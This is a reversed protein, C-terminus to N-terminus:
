CCCCCGGECANCIVCMECAEEGVECIACTTFISEGAEVGCVCTASIAGIGWAIGGVITAVLLPASSDTTSAYFQPGIYTYVLVGLPTFVSAVYAFVVLLYLVLRKAATSPEGRTIVRKREQYHAWKHALVAGSACVSIVIVVFSTSAAFNGSDFLYRPKCLQGDAVCQMCRYGRRSQEFVLFLIAIMAQPIDETMQAIFLFLTETRLYTREKRFQRKQATHGTKMLGRFPLGPNTVPDMARNADASGAMSHGAKGPFWMDYVVALRYLMNFIAPALSVYFIVRAAHGLSSLADTLQSSEEAATFFPVDCYSYEDETAIAATYLGLALTGNVDSIAINKVNTLEEDLALTVRWDTVLNAVLLGGLFLVLISQGIKFNTPEPLLENAEDQYSSANHNGGTELVNLQVTNTRLVADEEMRQAVPVGSWSNDSDKKDM